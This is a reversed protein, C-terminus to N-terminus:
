SLFINADVRIQAADLSLRIKAYASVFARILMAAVAFSSPAKTKAVQIICIRKM